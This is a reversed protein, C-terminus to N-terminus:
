SSSKRHEPRSVVDAVHHAFKRAADRSLPAFQHTGKDVPHRLTSLSGQLWFIPYTLGLPREGRIARRAVTTVSEWLGHVAGRYYTGCRLHKTFIAGQCFGSRELDTKAFRWFRFGHHIVRAAPCCHMGYGLRLLQVGM